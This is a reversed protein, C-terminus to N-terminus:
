EKIKFRRKHKVTKEFFYKKLFTLLVSYTMLNKLFLFRPKSLRCNSMIHM